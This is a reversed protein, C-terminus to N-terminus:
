RALSKESQRVLALLRDARGYMDEAEGRTAHDMGALHLIGHILLEQVRRVFSIKAERAERWATETSIVVDGLLGPVLGAGDGEQMPFALVNTPGRRGLYERNLEAM